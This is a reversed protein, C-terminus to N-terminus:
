GLLQRMDEIETKQTVIIMGALARAPGYSGKAQEEMAMTAAGEHHKIMMTLFMRDFEAGTAKKLEAMDKESMMGPMGGHGMGGTMGKEPVQAGWQRLWGTMTEIETRQTEEIHKALQTVEPSHARTVALESMEIAQRHHPIMMQAFKVDQANHDQISALSLASSDSMGHVATGVDHGGGWGAALLAVAPISLLQRKM